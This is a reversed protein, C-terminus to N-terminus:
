IKYKNKLKNKIYKPLNNFETIPFSFTKHNGKEKMLFKIATAEVWKWFAKYYTVETDFFMEEMDMGINFIWEEFTLQVGERFFKETQKLTSKAEKYDIKNM